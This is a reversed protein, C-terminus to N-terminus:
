SLGKGVRINMNSGPGKSPDEMDRMAEVMDFAMNSIYCAHFTTVNPAGSVVMYADGITEM